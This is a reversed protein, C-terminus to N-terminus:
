PRESPPGGVEIETDRNPDIDMESGKDIEVVRRPDNIYEDSDIFSTVAEIDSKKVYIIAEGHRERGHRDDLM